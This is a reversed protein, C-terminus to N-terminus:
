LNGLRPANSGFTDYLARQWRSWDDPWEGIEEWEIVANRCADLIKEKDGSNLAKTLKSKQVSHRRERM